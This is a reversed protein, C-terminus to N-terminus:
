SQQFSVAGGSPGNCRSSVANVNSHVPANQQVPAAAVAVTDDDDNRPCVNRNVADVGRRRDRENRKDRVTQREEPTM